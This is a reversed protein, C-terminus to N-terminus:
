KIFEEFRFYNIANNYSIDRVLSGLLEWDSPYEGNEVLTGIKNCLIRRFYEHRPYSLFSRSDTLMGVFNGFVGLAMLDTMQREMGPKNDNFWWATGCQIRGLPGSETQFAGMVSTVVGNDAPNLSHLIMKPLADKRELLDLFSALTRADNACDGMSDYGRDPGIKAYMTTSPNRICGFHIQMVWDLRKYEHACTVLLETHFAEYEERSVPEGAMGKRFTENLEDESAERCFLYDPGHDSIRCDHADFFEIRDILADRLDQVSNIERNCVSALKKIYSAFGPKDIRMANDPRMAPLVATPCDVANKIATHHELSDAPDDTTCFLKVNSKKLIGYVSMDPRALVANCADYVADANKSSLPEDIGFYRQLELHTWHYLPNGILKPMTAAWARFREKPDGKGTILEERIGNSRMARWKYHDEGLWIDTITSFRKDQEVEAPNIHCHYDVIPTSEAYEHFLTVATDNTLLFNNDMFPKM